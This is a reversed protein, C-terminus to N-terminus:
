RPRLGPRNKYSLFHNDDGFSPLQKPLSKRITKEGEERLEPPMENVMERIEADSAGRTADHAVDLVDYIFWAWGVLPVGKLIAKPTLMKQTLRAVGKKTAMKTAREQIRLRVAKQVAKDGKKLLKDMEKQGVGMNRLLQTNVQSATGKLGLQFSAKTAQRRALARVKSQQMAGLQAFSSSRGKTFTRTAADLMKNTLKGAVTGGVLSSGVQVATNGERDVADRLSGEPAPTSRPMGDGPGPEYNTRNEGMGLVALKDKPITSIIKQINAAIAAPDANPNADSFSKVIAEPTAGNEMANLVGAVDAENIGLGPAGGGAGGDKKRLSDLWTVQDIQEDTLGYTTRAMDYVEPILRNQVEEIAGTMSKVSEHMYRLDAGSIEAGPEGLSKSLVRAFWGKYSTDGKVLAVDQNSLVGTGQFSKAVNILAGAASAPNNIKYVQEGNHDIVPEGDEDVQLEFWNTADAMLAETTSKQHLYDASMEKLKGGAIKDYANQVYETVKEPDAIRDSMSTLVADVDGAKPQVGSQQFFSMVHEKANRRGLFVNPANKKGTSVGPTTNPSNMWASLANLRNKDLGLEKNIAAVQPAMEPTVEFGAWPDAKDINRVNGDGKQYLHGMIKQKRAVDDEARQLGKMKLDYQQMLMNHQDTQQAAKQEARKQAIDAANAAKFATIGGAEKVGAELDKKIENIDAPMPLGQAKYFSEAQESQAARDIFTDVKKKEFYKNLGTGLVKGVNEGISAMARAQAEAGRQLPSTDIQVRAQPAAQFYPSAM